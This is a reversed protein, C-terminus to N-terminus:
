DRPEELPFEHLYREYAPNTIHHKEAEVDARLREVDARAAAERLDVIAGQLRLARVASFTGPCDEIRVIPQLQEVLKEYDPQYHEAFPQRSPPGIIVQAGCGECELLDGSWLKYPQWTDGAPRGEEWWVGVQKVRYFRKCKPCAHTM